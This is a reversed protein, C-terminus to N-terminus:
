KMSIVFAIAYNDCHSISLFTNEPSYKSEGSDNNKNLFYLSPRGKNDNRIEIESYSYKKEKGLAKIASEKAAFRAAFHSYTDKKKLCYEIELSTFIKRYFKENSEFPLNRFRDISEIDVGIGTIKDKM